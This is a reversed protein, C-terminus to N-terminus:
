LRSILFPDRVMYQSNQIILKMQQEHDNGFVYAAVQFEKPANIYALLTIDSKREFTLGNFKDLIPNLLKESLSALQLACAIFEDHHPVIESNIFNNLHHCFEHFVISFYMDDNGNTGLIDSNQYFDSDFPTMLIYKEDSNYLAITNALVDENWDVPSGFYVMPSVLDSLDFGMDEYVSKAKDYANEALSKQDETANNGFTLKSSDESFHSVNEIKKCLHNEQDFNNRGCIRVSYSEFGEKSEVYLTGVLSPIETGVSTSILTAENDKQDIASLRYAPIDSDEIQIYDLKQLSFIKKNGSGDTLILEGEPLYVFRSDYKLGTLVIKISGDTKDDRSFDDSKLVPLELTESNRLQGTKMDYSSFYGGAIHTYLEEEPVYSPASVLEQIQSLSGVPSEVSGFTSIFIVVAVGLIKM